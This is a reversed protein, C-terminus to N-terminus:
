NWYCFRKEAFSALTWISPFYLRFFIAWKFLWCIGCYIIQFIIAPTQASSICLKYIYRYNIQWIDGDQSKPNMVEKQCFYSRWTYDLVYTINVCVSQVSWINLIDCLYRCVPVASLDLKIFVHKVLKFKGIDYRYLELVVSFTAVQGFLIDYTILYMLAEQKQLFVILFLFYICHTCTVSFQVLYFTYVNCFIYVLLGCM